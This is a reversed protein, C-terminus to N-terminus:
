QHNHEDWGNERLYIRYLVHNRYHRNHWKALWSRYQPQETTMITIMRDAAIYEIM